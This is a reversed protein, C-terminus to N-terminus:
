TSGNRARKERYQRCRHRNFITSKIGKNIVFDVELQVKENGDKKFDHEVVGVDINYGRSHLLDNYIINGYYTHREVQRFNLRQM